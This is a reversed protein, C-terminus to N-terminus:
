QEPPLVTSRAVMEIGYVVVSLKGAAVIDVNETWAGNSCSMYWLESTEGVVAVDVEVVGVELPLSVSEGPLRPSDGPTEACIPTPTPTPTTM